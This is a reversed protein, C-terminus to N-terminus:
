QLHHRAYSVLNALRDTEAILLKRGKATLRYTRRRESIDEGSATVEQILKATLCKKLYTYIIAPGLITAGKTIREISQMAMYGHAPGQLLALLIMHVAPALPPATIDSAQNAM